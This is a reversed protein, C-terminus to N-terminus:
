FLDKQIFKGGVLRSSYDIPVRHGRLPHMQVVDVGRVLISQVPPWFDDDSSVLTVAVHKQDCIYFMDSAVMTDVLKQESRVFLSRPKVRCLSVPCKNQTFATAIVSLACTGATCGNDRPEKCEVGGPTERPRFTHVLHRAPDILLSRALEVECSVVSSGKGFAMPRPFKASIEQVLEQAGRTLTKQLYWGGYLRIRVPSTVSVDRLLVAVAQAVYEVGKERQEKAINDWDILIYM